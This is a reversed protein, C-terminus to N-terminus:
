ADQKRTIQQPRVLKQYHKVFDNPIITTSYHAVSIEVQKNEHLNEIILHSANEPLLIRHGGQLLFASYEQSQGNVSITITITSYGEPTKGEPQLEIGFANIYIMKGQSTDLIDVELGSFNNEPELYLRSSCFDPHTGKNSTFQWQRPAEACSSLLYCSFLAM